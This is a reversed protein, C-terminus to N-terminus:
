MLDVKIIPRKMKDYGLINEAECSDRLWDSLLKYKWGRLIKIKLILLCM